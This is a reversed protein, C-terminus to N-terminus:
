ERSLPFGDGGRPERRRPFSSLPARSPRFPSHTGAKAPVVLPPAPLVSRPIPERRRPFSSLPRPFSPVPFPNGGARSRRSPPAPLVSRPIPERRRPFSPLLSRPRRTRIKRTAAATKTTHTTNPVAAAPACTTNSSWPFVYSVAVSTVSPDDTGTRISGPWSRSTNLISRDPSVPSVSKHIYAVESSYSVNAPSYSLSPVSTSSFSSPNKRPSM